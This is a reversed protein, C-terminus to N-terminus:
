FNFYLFPSFTGKVLYSVSVFFLLLLLVARSSQFWTSNVIKDPLRVFSLLACTLLEYKMEGLYMWPSDIGVNEVDLSILAKAYKIAAEFNDARFLIWLMMVALLTFIRYLWKWIKSRDTKDEINFAKEIMVLLGYVGGWTLFTLNAGHWLGTLLWVIALNFYTRGNKNGGLPIYVYDRFWISLSIHWRRWFDRVSKALYPKNFNEPITFGFMEGLGIAMDSYASFDMFIQLTYAITGLWAFAAGLEGTSLLDYAKDVIIAMGDALIVKKSFGGLFRMVGNNFSPMTVRRDQLQKEIETYRVIPGAILQPFFSIYLGVNIPNKNPKAKETMVDSIYSIAQFTYFSIGIPLPLENVVLNLRLAENIGNIFWNLYKFILLIGIDIVIALIGVWKGCGEMSLGAFWNILITIMFLVVLKPEGWAYFFLSMSLLFLNRAKIFRQLLFDGILAVPLFAFIFELSSFIM